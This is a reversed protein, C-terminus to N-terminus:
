PQGELIHDSSDWILRRIERDLIICGESAWGAPPLKREGHIRFATRGFMTNGSDPVLVLTYPGKSSTRDTIRYKGQPIPGLGRVHQRSPNNKNTMRGAYGYGWSKTDQLIEGTSQHYIWTM